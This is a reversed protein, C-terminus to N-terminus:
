LDIIKVSAYKDSFIRTNRLLEWETAYEEGTDIRFDESGFRDMTTVLRGVTIQHIDLNPLYIPEYPFGDRQIELLLGAKVLKELTDNVILLPLHCEKALRESIYPEGQYQFSKCIKKMIILAIFDVYRRSIRESQEKFAYREVNQIAYTLQVGFLCIIWSFQIFLLLLPIAAFSGYIANYKSVWLQGSIYIMQFVQFVSGAVAGAVLSASLKVKTNPLLYYLTSLVVWVIIFPIFRLIFEIVPTMSFQGSFLATDHFSRIFVNAGGSLTMLIPILIFATMYGLLRQSWSRAKHIHWVDNFTDEVAALLMIVTYILFVVGIGIMIGSQIQEMYKKVFELAQSIEVRHAPFYDYLQDQVSERVGFGAAISLLVALFPVISLLTSYTLASAKQTVQGNLFETVSVYIIKLTKVLVGKAGKMDSNYITWMDKMVFRVAGSIWAVIRAVFGQKEEREKQIQELSKEGTGM